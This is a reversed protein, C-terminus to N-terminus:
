GSQKDQSQVKNISLLMALKSSVDDLKKDGAKFHQEHLTTIDALHDLRKNNHAIQTELHSIKATNFTALTLTAASMGFSVLDLFRKDRTVVEYEPLAALINNFDNHKDVLCSKSIDAVQNVQTRFPEPWKDIYTHYTDFIQAPTKLLKSFNFPVRVHIFHMSAAYKRSPRFLLQLKAPTAVNANLLRTEPDLVAMAGNM